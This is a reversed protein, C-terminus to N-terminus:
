AMNGFFEDLFKAGANTSGNGLASVVDAPIIFQGDALHVEGGEAFGGGWQAARRNQLEKTVDDDMQNNAQATQIAGIAQQGGQLALSPALQQAASGAFSGL